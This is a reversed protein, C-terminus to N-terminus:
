MESNGQAGGFIYCLRMTERVLWVVAWALM